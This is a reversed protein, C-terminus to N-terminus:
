VDRSAAHIRDLVPLLYRRFQAPNESMPFHGVEKMEIVEAGAIGAATRRTDDPSCSFDYEGTLLWLPTVSTNINGLRGRLDGDVRYFHLDGRFVGPGGQMYQWLTEDRYQAPSQPAVLGSVLAACVEGGHVDGRHLWSTDYWPAQYDAAEVGILARFELGHDNALQLVIRGGISCGMVVPKDLGLAGIVARITEVYRATTLAYEGPQAGPPPYSKGHWPMDFAIVRFRETIADDCMLHRYQRADAGATHLCVLPIGQGAEEVYVRCAEGGIPVSLYRGIIAEYQPAAQPKDRSQIEASM